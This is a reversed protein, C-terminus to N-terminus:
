GSVAPGLGARAAGGAPAHRLPQVAGAVTTRELGHAPSGLYAAVRVVAHTGGLALEADTSLVRRGSRREVLEYLPLAWPFPLSSAWGLASLAQSRNPAGVVSVGDGPLLAVAGPVQDELVLGDIATDGEGVTLRRVGPGARTPQEPAPPPVALGVYAVPGEATWGEARGEDPNVGHVVEGGPGRLRFLPLAGRDHDRYLRAVVREFHHPHVEEADGCAYTVEGTGPHRLEVLDVLTTRDASPAFASGVTGEFLWGDGSSHGLGTGLTYRWEPRDRHRWRYLPGVGWDPLLANGLIGEAVHTGAAVLAQWGATALRHGPESAATHPGTGVPALRVLPLTGEYHRDPLSGLLASLTLGTALDAPANRMYYRGGAEPHSAELLTFGTHGPAPLRAVSTARRLR